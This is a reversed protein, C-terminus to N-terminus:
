EMMIQTPTRIVTFQLRETSRMPSCSVNTSNLTPDERYAYVRYNYTLREILPKDLPITYENQYIFGSGPIGDTNSDFGNYVRVRYAVAGPVNDWKITPTTGLVYDGDKPKLNTPFPLPNISNSTLTDTFSSTNGDCDMVTFTYTGKPILNFDTYQIRHWYIAGTSGVAQDYLLVLDNEKGGELELCRNNPCQVKVWEINTPVGDPDSVLVEFYLWYLPDTNHMGPYKLVYVGAGNNQINPPSAGETKPVTLVNNAYGTRGSHSSNDLNQDNFEHRAIVRVRYMTEEKLLGPPISYHNETTSVSYITKYNLDYIDVKYLVAGTVADWTIDMATNGLVTGNEPKLNKVADIPAKNLEEQTEYIHGDWDEVQFRYIGADVAGFYEGQYIGTTPISGSSGPDHALIKEAGNPMIAKVRKINQPVGDADHVRIYFNLYVGDAPDTFTQVGNTEFEIYPSKVVKNPDDPISFNMMGWSPARTENDFDIQAHTDYADIRYQYFASSPKLIGPPVKYSTESIGNVTWLTKTGNNQYIRVRYRSAGDVPDWSITPCSDETVLQLRSEISKSSKGPQAVTGSPSYAGLYTDSNVIAGYTLTKASPNWDLSAQVTKGLFDGTALPVRTVVNYTDYEIEYVYEIRDPYVQLKSIVNRGDISFFYGSIQNVAASSASDVKIDAEIGTVTEPDIKVSLQSNTTQYIDKPATNQSPNPIVFQAAGNDFSKAGAGSVNWLTSLFGAEFDDYLVFTGNGRKLAVRDFIASTSQGRLSLSLSDDPILQLPNVTLPDVAEGKNNGRDVVNFIYNGNPASNQGLYLYGAFFASTSSEKSYYYLNSGTTGLVTGPYTVTVTHTDVDVGDHDVVRVWLDFAGGDSRNWYSVGVGGTEIAPLAPSLGAVLPFGFGDM